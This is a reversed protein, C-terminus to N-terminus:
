APLLAGLDPQDGTNDVRIRSVGSWACDVSGARSWFEAWHALKWTDRAYGRREIRRRVTEGDTVVEVVVWRADPWDHRKAAEVLFDPDQLFQGFPADLVVSTGLRLNDGAARLLAAYELPLIHERYFANNDRDHPDHGAQELLRETFESTMTDKDLYASGTRRAIDQSVWTKGSGAPGIVVHLTPRPGHSM